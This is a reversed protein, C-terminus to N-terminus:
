GYLDPIPLNQPPEAKTTAPRTDAPTGHTRRQELPLTIPPEARKAETKKVLPAKVTMMPFHWLSALEETNLIFGYEGPSMFHARNRCRILMKTKRWILRREKMFVIGGTLYRSDPKLSNLGLDNFQKFSGYIGKSAKEKFFKSKEALYAFRIRTHYGIKNVKHEIAAVEDKKGPTLHLMQTPPEKSAGAKTESPATLLADLVYTFLNTVRSFLDKTGSDKAGVLRNIIPKAKDGWDNNAPTILFQVWIEEGPGIRTLAELLGAMPDKLEQSLSDEFLKYTIIPYVDSKALKLETGFLDYQDNPFKIKWKQTYDEVETIEADPYQAYIAAEILDRFTDRAHIIFQIYGGLSVIEFSFSDNIEGKWWKDHFKLPQHAAALQAFINEVALPSQENNKPVDIALLIYKRQRRYRNRIYNQWTLLLGYMLLFVPYIWGITTFFWWAFAVPSSSIQNFDIIIEM